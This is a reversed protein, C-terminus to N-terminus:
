RRLTVLEDAPNASLALGRFRFEQPRRNSHLPLGIPSKQLMKPEDRIDFVLKGNAVFRIRDGIVLVEIRNWEGLREVGKPHFTGRHGKPEVRNRRYAYDHCCGGTILLARIPKKKVADDAIARLSLTLLTLVALSSALCRYRLTM